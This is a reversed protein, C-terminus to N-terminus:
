SNNRYMISCLFIFPLFYPCYFNGQIHMTVNFDSKHLKVLARSVSQELVILETTWIKDTFLDINKRHENGRLTIYGNKGISIIISIDCHM